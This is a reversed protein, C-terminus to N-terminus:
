LVMYNALVRKHLCIVRWRRDGVMVTVVVGTLDNHMHESLM